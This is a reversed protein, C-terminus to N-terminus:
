IEHSTFPVTSVADPLKKLVESADDDDSTVVFEQNGGIRGAFPSSSVAYDLRSRQAVMAAASDETNSEVNRETKLMISVVLKSQQWKLESLLVVSLIQLVQFPIYTSISQKSM